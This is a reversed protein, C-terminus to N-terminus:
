DQCEPEIGSAAVLIPEYSLKASCGGQLRSTTTEFVVPDVIPAFTVKRLKQVSHEERSQNM